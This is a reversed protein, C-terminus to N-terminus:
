HSKRNARWYYAEEYTRARRVSIIRRAKNRKTYVITIIKTKIQGLAVFRREQRYVTKLLLPRNRLVDIADIFDVGHKLINAQRKNEDWEFEM